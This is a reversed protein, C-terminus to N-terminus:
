FQRRSSPTLHRPQRRPQQMGPTVQRLYGGNSTWADPNWGTRAPRVDVERLDCILDGRSDFVRLRGRYVASWGGRPPLVQGNAGVGPRLPETHLFYNQTLVTPRSGNGSFEGSLNIVTRNGTVRERVRLEYWGSLHGAVSAVARGGVETAEIDLMCTGRHLSRYEPERMLEAPRWPNNQAAAPVAATLATAAALAPLLIQNHLSTM